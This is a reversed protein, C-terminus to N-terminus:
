KVFLDNIVGNLHKSWICHGQVNPHGCNLFNGNGRIVEREVCARGWNKNFYKKAFRKTLKYNEENLWDFEFIPIHYKFFVEQNNSLYELFSKDIFYKPKILPVDGFVSFHIVPVSSVQEIAKINSNWSLLIDNLSTDKFFDLTDKNVSSFEMMKDNRLFRTVGSWGVIVLDYSDDYNFLFQKVINENTSGHIAVNKFKYDLFSPWSQNPSVGWGKTWSDGCILIKM